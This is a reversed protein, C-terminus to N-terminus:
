GDTSPVVGCNPSQAFGFRNITPTNSCIFSSSGVFTGAITPEAVRASSVVNFVTRANLFSPSSVLTNSGGIAGLRLGTVLEGSIQRGQQAAWTSTSYPAIIRSDSFYFPKNEQVPEVVGTNTNLASSAVCSGIAPQGSGGVGINSLFTARTGSGAQPLLPILNNCAASGPTGSASYITRLSAISFTASATANDRTVYSIGDIAFPIYKLPAGAVPTGAGSSSRAFDLCDSGDTARQNVTGAAGGPNPALISDRLRDRGAGSGNPRFGPGAKTSDFIGSGPTTENGNFQCGPKPNFTGGIADYAGFQAGSLNQIASIVEQTTDSGGGNIARPSAPDAAFAPSALAAVALAAVGGFALIKRM